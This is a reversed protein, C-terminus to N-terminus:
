RGDRCRGRPLANHTVGGLREIMEQVRTGIKPNVGSCALDALFDDVRESAFALRFAAALGERLEKLLSIIEPLDIRSQATM